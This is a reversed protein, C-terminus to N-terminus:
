ALGRFWRFDDGPGSSCFGEKSAMEVRMGFSALSVLSVGRFGRMQRCKWAGLRSVGANRGDSWRIRRFGRIEAWSGRFEESKLNEVKSNRANKVGWMALVTHKVVSKAFM